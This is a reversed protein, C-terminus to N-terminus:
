PMATAMLRASGGNDFPPLRRRSRGDCRAGLYYLAAAAVMLGGVRLVWSWTGSSSAADGAKWAAGLHGLYAVVCIGPLTVAFTTLLYSWFGVPSAGLLFNQLGFPLAHSLRVAAVLRWSGRRGFTRYVADIKPYRKALRAAKKKGLGRGIFFSVAAATNSALSTLGAGLLPGFVVGSIVNLPWGPLFVVTLAVFLFVFVAASWPGLADAQDHLWQVPREVPLFRLALAIAVLLLLVLGARILRGHHKVAHALSFRM